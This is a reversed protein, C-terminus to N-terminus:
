RKVRRTRQTAIEGSPSEREAIFAILADRRWYRRRGFKSCPPLAGPKKMWRRITSVDRRFFEALGNEDLLDSNTKQDDM